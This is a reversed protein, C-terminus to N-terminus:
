GATMRAAELACDRTPALGKARMAAVEVRAADLDARFAEDGHLRAVAAAGMVMGEEVDSRWHVNCYRRSDSFARGRALIAEAREPAVEAVILAWGWGLAAHGSPYSGDRRLAADLAPTCMPKGNVTFPRARQYKTKTPYTSLGIDRMSRRLLRVLAPTEAESIPGGIACSFTGAAAPWSLDADETALLWRPGGHAALAATSAAEDRALAASGPAPPPPVIALSSPLTGAGLYPTVAAAPAPAPAPQGGAPATGLMAALAAAGIWIRWRM